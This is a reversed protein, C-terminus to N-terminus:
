NLLDEITKKFKNILETKLKNPSVVPVLPKTQKKRTKSGPPKLLDMNVVIKKTNSM